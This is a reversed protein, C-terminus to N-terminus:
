PTPANWHTRFCRVGRNSSDVTVVRDGRHRLQEPIGAALWVGGPTAGRVVNPAAIAAAGVETLRVPMVGIGGEFRALSSEAAVAISFVIGLFLVFALV